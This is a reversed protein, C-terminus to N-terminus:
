DPTRAVRFGYDDYAYDPGAGIRSASRVVKPPNYWGGGRLVRVSCQADIWPSGDTPAGEYHDHYCDEVWERVNGATDHLGFGNAEFSGVPATKENDWNSGCGDCNARDSEQNEGWWYPTATGGRAAYEWKAESLLEYAKGTKRSLWSAYAKADDWSVRIVPRNLRGWGADSKPKCGGAAVCADWEAFTVEFKGALFPEAVTVNHQPGEDDDRGPEDSPSGMTFQGAAVLVM